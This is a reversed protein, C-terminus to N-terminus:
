HLPISVYFTSGKELISTLWIKGKHLEVIKKCITLGMGSGPFDDQSHLKKFADFIIEFNEEAIGIGNDKISIVVENNQEIIKIKTTSEKKRFKLANEIINFLLIQLEKKYGILFNTESVIDLETQNQEILPSLKKELHKFFPEIIIKEKTSNKGINTYDILANMYNKMKYSAKEIANISVKSTENMDFTEEKLISLYSIITNLPSQIEHSVLFAFENLIKNKQNDLSDNKKNNDM